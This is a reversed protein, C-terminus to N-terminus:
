VERIRLFSVPTRYEYDIRPELGEWHGRWYIFWRKEGIDIWEEDPFKKEYVKM